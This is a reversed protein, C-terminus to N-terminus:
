NKPAAPVVSITPQAIQVQPQIVQAVEQATPQIPAVSVIPAEPLQVGETTNATGANGADDVVFESFAEEQQASDNKDSDQSEIGIIVIGYLGVVNFEPYVGLFANWDITEKGYQTTIEIKDVINVASDPNFTRELSQLTVESNLNFLLKHQVMELDRSPEQSYGVLAESLQKGDLPAVEFTGNKDFTFLGQIARSDEFAGQIAEAFATEDEDSSDLFQDAFSKKAEIKVQKSEKAPVKVDSVSLASELVDPEEEDYDDENFVLLNQLRAELEPDVNHFKYHDFFDGVERSYVEAQDDAYIVQPPYKLQTSARINKNTLHLVKVQAGQRAGKVKRWVSGETLLDLNNTM